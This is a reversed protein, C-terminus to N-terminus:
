KGMGGAEVWEESKQDEDRMAVGSVVRRGWLVRGGGLEDDDDHAEVEAELGGRGSRGKLEGRLGGGIM